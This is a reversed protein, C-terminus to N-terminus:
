VRQFGSESILNRLKNNAIGETGEGLSGRALAETSGFAPARAGCRPSRLCQASQRNAAIGCRSSLLLSGHGCPIAYRTGLITHQANYHVTTCQLASSHAPTCQLASYHVTTCQLATGHRAAGQRAAGHRPLPRSNRPPSCVNM